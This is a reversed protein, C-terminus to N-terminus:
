NLSRAPADFASEVDALVNRADDVFAGMDSSAYACLMRGGADRALILVETVDGECARDYLDQVLAEAQERTKM